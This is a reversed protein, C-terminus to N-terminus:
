SVGAELELRVHAPVEDVLELRLVGLAREDLALPVQVRVWADPSGPPQMTPAEPAVVGGSDTVAPRVDVLHEVADALGAATGRRALQRGYGGVQARLTPVDLGEPAAFGLWTALWAVFDAPAVAPDFYAPLNDLVLWVPALLEDVVDALDVMGPDREQYVSPLQQRLPVPVGVPAGAGSGVEDGSGTAFTLRLADRSM